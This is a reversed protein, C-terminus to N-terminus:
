LGTEVRAPSECRWRTVHVEPHEGAWQALIPQAQMACAAPSIDMAFPLRVERCDQPAALACATVILLIM